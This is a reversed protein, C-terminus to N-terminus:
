HPAALFVHDHTYAELKPLTAMPTGIQRLPPDYALAKELAPRFVEFDLERGM